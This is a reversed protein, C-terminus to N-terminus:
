INNFISGRAIYGVEHSKGPLGFLKMKYDSKANSGLKQKIDVSNTFAQMIVASALGKLSNLCFLAIVDALEYTYDAAKVLDFDRPM